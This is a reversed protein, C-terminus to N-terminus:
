CLPEGGNGEQAALAEKSLRLDWRIYGCRGRIHLFILIGSIANEVNALSANASLGVGV